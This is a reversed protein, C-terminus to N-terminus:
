LSIIHISTQPPLRGALIDITTYLPKYFVASVAEQTWVVSYSVTFSAWGGGEGGGGPELLVNQVANFNHDTVDRVDLRLSYYFVPM